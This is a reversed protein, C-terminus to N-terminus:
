SKTKEELLLKKVKNLAHNPVYYKRDARVLYGQKQLERVYVKVTGEPVGTKQHIDKPGESESERLGKNVFVKNSLLHLIISQKPGFEDQFIIEGDKTLKVKGVLMEKLIQENLEDKEVFLEDFKDSMMIVRLKM